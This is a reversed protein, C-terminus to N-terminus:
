NESRYTLSRNEKSQLAKRIESISAKEMRFVNV